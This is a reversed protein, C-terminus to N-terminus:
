ITNSLFLGINLQYIRFKENKDGNKLSEPRIGSIHTRYDIIKEVPAVFKDYICDGYLNVVSVRALMDDHGEPGVGVFECDIALCKTLSSISLKLALIFHFM